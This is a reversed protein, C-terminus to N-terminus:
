KSLEAKVRGFQALTMTEPKIGMQQLVQGLDKGAAKAKLELNRKHGDSALEGTEEADDVLSGQTQTQPAPAPPPPPKATDFPAGGTDEADIVNGNNKQAPTTKTPMLPRSSGDGMVESAPAPPMPPATELEDATYIGLIAGPCYLRAWNKVQLYGLQQAPNTKWLPSNKTTVENAGLWAGWTIDHEGRLVAGVRCALNAGQGHYEYKFAGVIAGSAQIVANVLQAEYGLTGNVLHTKQAVAFPNMGWQAAQMAIAFCDAPKGRLHQPVTIASKAMMDAFSMLNQLKAPDMMLAVANQTSPQDITTLDNM